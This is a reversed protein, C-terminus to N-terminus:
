ASSCGFKFSLALYMVLFVTTYVANLIHKHEKEIDSGYEMMAVKPLERSIKVKKVTDRKTQTSTTANVNTYEVSCQVFSQHLVIPEYQVEANRTLHCVVQAQAEKPRATIQELFELINNYSKVDYEYQPVPETEPLCIIESADSKVEEENIELKRPEKVPEEKSSSDPGCAATVVCRESDSTLNSGLEVARPSQSADSAQEELGPSVQSGDSVREELRPSTGESTVGDLDVKPINEEGEESVPSEPDYGFITDLATMKLSDVKEKKSKGHLMRMKKLVQRIEKEVANFAEANQKEPKSLVDVIKKEIMEIINQINSEFMVSHNKVLNRMNDLMNYSNEAKKAITRPSPPGRKKPQKMECTEQSSM